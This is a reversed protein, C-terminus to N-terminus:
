CSYQLSVCGSASAEKRRLVWREFSLQVDTAREEYENGECGFGSGLVSEISVGQLSINQKNSDNDDDGLRQDPVEGGRMKGEVWKVWETETPAVLSWAEGGKGVRATRGVRHVYETAGGETPLDYQVV